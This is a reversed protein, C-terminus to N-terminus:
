YTKSIMEMSELRTFRNTQPVSLSLFVRVQIEHVRAITVPVSTVVSDTFLVNADGTNIARAKGVRTDEICVCVCVVDAVEGM